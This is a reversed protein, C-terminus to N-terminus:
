LKVDLLWCLILFIISCVYFLPMWIKYQTEEEKTRKKITTIAMVGSVIALGTFIILLIYLINKKNM